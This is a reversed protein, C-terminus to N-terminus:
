YEKKFENKFIKYLQYNDSITMSAYKNKLHELFM